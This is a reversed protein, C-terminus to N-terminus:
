FCANVNACFFLHFFTIVLETDKEVLSVKHPLRQSRSMVKANECVRAIALGVKEYDKV